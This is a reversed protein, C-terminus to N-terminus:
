IRARFIDYKRLFDHQQSNKRIDVGVPLGEARAEVERPRAARFADNAEAIEDSIAGIRFPRNLHHHAKDIAPGHGHAAVVVIGDADRAFGHIGFRLGRDLPRAAPEAHYLPAKQRVQRQGQLLIVAEVHM